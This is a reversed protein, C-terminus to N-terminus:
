MRRLIPTQLALVCIVKAQEPAEAVARCTREIEAQETGMRSQIAGPIERGLAAVSFHAKPM